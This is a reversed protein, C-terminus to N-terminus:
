IHLHDLIWFHNQTSRRRLVDLLSDAPTRGKKLNDVLPWAFRAILDADSLEPLNMDPMRVLYPKPLSGVQILNAAFALTM